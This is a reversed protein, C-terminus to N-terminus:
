KANGELRSELAEVYALCAPSLRARESAPLSPLPASVRRLITISRSHGPLSNRVYGREELRQIVRHINSKSKLGLAAVIQDYTPASGTADLHRQIVQMVDRQRPTLSSM